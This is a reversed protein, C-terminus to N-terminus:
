ERPGCCSRYLYPQHAAVPGDRANLVYLLNGHVAISVPFTGGTSIVQRRILMLGNGCALTM